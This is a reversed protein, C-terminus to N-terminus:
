FPLSCEFTLLKNLSCFCLLNVLFVLSLIDYRHISICDYMFIVVTFLLVCLLACPNLFLFSWIDKKDGRMPELKMNRNEYKIASREVRTFFLKKACITTRM